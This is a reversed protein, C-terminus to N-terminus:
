ATAIRKLANGLHKEILHYCLTSLGLAILFATISFGLVQLWLDGSTAGSASLRKLWLIIIIHILYFSYSITGMFQIIRHRLLPALFSKGQAVAYFFLAGPIALLLSMHMPSLHTVPGMTVREVVFLAGIGSGMALFAAQDCWRPLPAAPQDRGHLLKFIIAGALFFGSLPYYVLAACIMGYGLVRGPLRGWRWLSYLLATSLYFAMEYSLTWANLQVLPLEIIGPLLLANTIFVFSRFWWTMTQIQEMWVYGLAHTFSFTLCLMLFFAPYIRILRQTLFLGINGHRVLSATILYGSILYFIQVGGTLSGLAAKIFLPITEVPILGTAPQGTGESTLLLDYIHFVFIMLAAVGRLGHIDPNHAPAAPSPTM